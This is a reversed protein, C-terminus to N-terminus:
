ATALYAAARQDLDAFESTARVPQLVQRVTAAMDRVRGSRVGSTADLATSWTAGARDLHGRAAQIEGLYGLTVAHTRVFEKGRLEVSRTLAAEAGNLDGSAYLTRGTEHALSAESFFFVRSPEEDGSSAAALDNEARLLAAASAGGLGATALARAHVVGILARERLCATRYRDGDVSAEALALADNPKELEIAQHALARLAHGALAPDGAEEALKVSTTLLRRAQGHRADDFAMWGAVYAVESAAAFMAARVSENPFVGTVMRQVDNLLYTTVQALASGGGLKQDARAFGGATSYVRAVDTTGYRRGATPPAGWSVVTAAAAGLAERRTLDVAGNDRAPRAAPATPAQLQRLLDQQALPLHEHDVDDLLDLVTCGNGFARALRALDELAPRSGGHPWNEWRSLRSDDIPADPNVTRYQQVAKWQTWGLAARWARRPRDGFAQQMQAAIQAVSRDEAALRMRLQERAARESRAM